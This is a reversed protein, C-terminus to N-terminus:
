DHNTQLHADFTSIGGPSHSTEQLHLIDSNKFEPGFAATDYIFAMAEEKRASRGDKVYYRVEFCM